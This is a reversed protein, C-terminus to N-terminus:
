EVCFQNGVLNDPQTGGWPLQNPTAFFGSRENNGDVFFCRDPSTNSSSKEPDELGSCYVNLNVLRVPLYKRVWVPFRSEGRLFVDVADFLPRTDIRALDSSIERCMDKAVTFNVKARIFAILIRGKSTSM